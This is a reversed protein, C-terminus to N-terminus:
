EINKREIKKKMNLITSVSIFASIMHCAVTAIAAGNTGGLVFDIKPVLITNLIGKIIVGITIAKVPIYNKGLANLVTNAIQEITIFIIQLSSIRLIQGGESANPFLVKLITDSFILYTITIPIAISMGLVISQKARKIQEQKNESNAAISPLLATVIAINLSLPFSILAEVKGSLIGYQRKAENYGIINKLSNIITM